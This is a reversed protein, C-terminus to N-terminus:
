SGASADPAPTPRVLAGKNGCATVFLLVLALALLALASRTSKM